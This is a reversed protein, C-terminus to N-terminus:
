PKKGKHLENLKAYKYFAYLANNRAIIFGYMGDLFGRRLILGNFFEWFASLFPKLSAPKKGRAFLTQAALTSFRNMKDVHESLTRFSYHLLDGQLRQVRTGPQLVVWEHPEAGEIHGIAKHYLRLKRDPYYSGHKIWQGCYNNLRNMQYGQQPFGLAKEKLIAQQLADSLREDADLNLVVPCTALSQAFNRQAVIGEWKNQVFRVGFSRCIAATADTSYSDVVVIEDAVPLLSKLCDAIDAEENYTIVVATLPVSKVLM